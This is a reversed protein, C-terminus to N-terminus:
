KILQENPPIPHPHKDFQSNMYDEHHVEQVHDEPAVLRRLEKTQIAM